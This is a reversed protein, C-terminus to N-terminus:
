SVELIYIEIEGSPTEICVNDKEKHGLLGKGIPSEASIKNKSPNAEIPSVIKYTEQKNDPKEMFTVTSGIMISSHLESSPHIIQINRLMEEINQIQERVLAQQELMDSFCKDEEFDCFKRLRKIEETIEQQRVNKLYDLEEELKKKGELTMPYKQLM